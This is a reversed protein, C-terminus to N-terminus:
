PFLSLFCSNECYIFVTFLLVCHDFDGNIGSLFRLFLPAESHAIQRQRTHKIVCVDM